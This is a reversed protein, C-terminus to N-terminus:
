IKGVEGESSQIKMYNGQLEEIYNYPEAMPPHIVEMRNDPLSPILDDNQTPVDEGLQVSDGIADIHSISMNSEEVQRLTLGGDNDNVPIAPNASIVQHAPLVLSPMYNANDPM